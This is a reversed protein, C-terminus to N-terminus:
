TTRTRLVQGQGRQSWLWHSLLGMLLGILGAFILLAWGITQRLGASFGIAASQSMGAIQRNVCAVADPGRCGPFLENLQELASGVVAASVNKGTGAISVALPGQGQSGLEAILGRVADDVAARAAQGVLLAVPSVGPERGLGAREGSPGGNAVQLASTVAEAVAGNVVQQIRERQAPADLAAVSGAVAREVALDILHEIRERQEPADLAAFAGETARQAFVRSVQRSPDDASEAQSNAVEQAAGAAANKGMHGACASGLLALTAAFSGIAFQMSERARARVFPTRHEM